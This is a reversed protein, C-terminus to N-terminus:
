PRTRERRLVWLTWATIVAFAVAEAAAYGVQARELGLDYPLWIGVAAAGLAFAVGARVRNGARWEQGSDVWCLLWTFLFIATAVAHLPNPMPFVGALLFGVGVLAYPVALARRGVTALWAAFPLALLGSGVLGLNFTTAVAGEGSGVISFPDTPWTFHPSALGGGIVTAWLVGQMAVGSVPGIRSLWTM